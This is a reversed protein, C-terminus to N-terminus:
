EMLRKWLEMAKSLDALVMVQHQVRTKEKNEFSVLTITSDVLFALMQKSISTAAICTVTKLIKTLTDYTITVHGQLPRFKPWISFANVNIPPLDWM